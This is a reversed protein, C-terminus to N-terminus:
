IKEIDEITKLMIKELKTLQSLYNKAIKYQEKLDKNKTKEAESEYKALLKPLQAIIPTVDLDLGLKIKSIMIQKLDKTIFFYVKKSGPKRIRQVFHFNELLKMKTSVASLSYGTLEALEDLSIEKPSIFLRLSLEATIPDLGTMLSGKMTMELFEKEFQTEKMM